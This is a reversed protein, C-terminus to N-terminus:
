VDGLHGSLSSALAYCLPWFPSSETTCRDVLTLFLTKVWGLSSTGLPFGVRALWSRRRYCSYVRSEHPRVQPDPVPKRLWWRLQWRHSEDHSSETWQTPTHTLTNFAFTFNFTQNSIYRRKLLETTFWWRLLARTLVIFCFGKIPIVQFKACDEVGHPLRNIKPEPNSYLTVLRVSHRRRSATCM